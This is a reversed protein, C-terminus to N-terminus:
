KEKENTLKDIVYSIKEVNESISSNLTNCDQSLKEVQDAVIAFGRGAEGARASEISANLALMKQQKQINFLKATNAKIEQVLTHCDAIGGELHELLKSNYKQSYSAFICNNLADGLLYAAAEIQTKSRVNVKRLAEIYSTENVGIEKAVARFKDEDPNEPLVQGGIVAGIKQDHLVLDISFDILGAHCYYIGSCEKDCKECRRKGEKSNRTYKMCFDTFNYCDSIYNGDADVAVTALGTASAWNQMIEQFRKMDTFDQIKMFVMGGKTIIFYADKQFHFPHSLM